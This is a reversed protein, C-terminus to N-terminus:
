HVTQGGDVVITSIGSGGGTVIVPEGDFQLEKLM